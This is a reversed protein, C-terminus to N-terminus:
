PHVCVKIQRPIFHCHVAKTAHRWLPEQVARQAQAPARPRRDDVQGRRRHRGAADYGEARRLVPPAGGRDFKM